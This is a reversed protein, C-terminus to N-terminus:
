TDRGAAAKMQKDIEEAKALAWPEEDMYGMVFIKHDNNSMTARAEEIIKQQWRAKRNAPDRYNVGGGNPKPQSRASPGDKADKLSQRAKSREPSERKRVTRDKDERLASKRTGDGDHGPETGDGDGDHGADGSTQNNLDKAARWKKKRVRGAERNVSEEEKRAWAELVKNCLKEHYLRGDSCLIFGRLAVDRVKDWTTGTGDGPSSVDAWKGLLYEDNPLSGAPVQFWAHCWLNICARSEWGNAKGWTESNFLEIINLPMFHFDRLDVNAPVPPKPLKAM